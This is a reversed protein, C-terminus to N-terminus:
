NNFSESDNIEFNFENILEKLKNKGYITEANRFTQNKSLLLFKDEDFEILKKVFAGAIPYLISSAYTGGKKWLHTVDIKKKKCIQKAKLLYNKKSQDFCVAIGENIFRTRIKLDDIWFVINHTIEHGITQNPRNHSICLDPRTFGLNNKLHKLAEKNSKWVFFDIKKPLKANFFSNIAMFANERRNIYEKMNPISLTDQFHFIINDTETSYWDNYLEDFGLLLERSHLTNNSNKTGKFEKTKRYYDLAKEKYGIGFYSTMLEIYTWAYEWDKTALKEAKILYPISENFKGQENYIKGLTGNLESNNPEDKLLKKIIPISKEYDKTILAKRLMKKQSCGNITIFLIILFFSLFLKTAISKISKM